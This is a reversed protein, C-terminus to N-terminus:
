RLTKLWRLVAEQLAIRCDSYSHDTKFYVTAVSANGAKRLAAALREGDMRYGDNSTVVLTPCNGVEPAYASFQWDKAHDMLEQALGESTCGALPEIGTIEKALQHFDKTSGGFAGMDAASILVIGALRHDHAATAIAIAGGMSHGVLVILNPDLRFARAIAQSRVFSLVSDADEICHTFSFSGSSGWAGRYTFFLVDWGARRLTQALDLNKENGPFGHLLIACPHPGPGAAVFMNANLSGDRSPIPFSAM